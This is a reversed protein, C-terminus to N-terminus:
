LYSLCTYLYNSMGVVVYREGFYYDNLRYHGKLLLRVNERGGLVTVQYKAFVFGCIIVICKKIVVCKETVVVPAQNLCSSSMVIVSRYRTM